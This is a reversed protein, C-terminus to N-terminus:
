FSSKLLAEFAEHVAATNWNRGGVASLIIYGERDIIFTAPIGQVGYLNGTKGESDLLTTFSLKNDSIFKKVDSQNEMIDCAIMELGEDAFRKHLAEMSPMEARCPPCWTAWFNLFVVKGKLDALSLTRGDLSKLSWAPAKRKEKFM